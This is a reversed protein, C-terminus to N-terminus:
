RLTPIGEYMAVYRSACVLRLPKSEYDSGRGVDLVKGMM